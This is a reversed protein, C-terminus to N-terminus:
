WTGPLEYRTGPVPAVDTAAIAADVDAEATVAAAGKAAAELVPVAEAAIAATRGYKM